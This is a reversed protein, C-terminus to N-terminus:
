AYRVRVIQPLLSELSVEASVLAAHPWSDNGITESLITWYSASAAVSIPKTAPQSSCFMDYM